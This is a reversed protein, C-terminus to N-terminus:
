KCCYIRHDDLNKEKILDEIELGYLLEKSEGAIELADKQHQQRIIRVETSDSARQEAILVHKVDESRAYEHVRIGCSDLFGCIIKCAAINPRALLSEANYPPFLQMRKLREMMAERQPELLGCNWLVHNLSEEECGCRCRPDSIINKREMWPWGHGDMKNKAETNNKAVKSFEAALDLYRVFSARPHERLTAVRALADVEENGELGIHSPIWLLEIEKGRIGSSLAVIKRKIELTQEMTGSRTRLSGVGLLASLSDSVIMFREGDTLAIHELAGIIAGCEATFISSIPSLSGSSRYEDRPCYVAYGVSPAGKVKSGDTYISTAKTTYIFLTSQATTLLRASSYHTDIYIVIITSATALMSFKGDLQYTRQSDHLKHQRVPAERSCSTANELVHGVDFRGHHLTSRLRSRRGHEGAYTAFVSSGREPRSYRHCITPISMKIKSRQRGADPWFIDIKYESSRSPTTANQFFETDAEGEQLVRLSQFLNVNESLATAPTSPGEIADSVSRKVVTKANRWHCPQSPCRGHCMRVDCEIYLAPSGTFRFTKMYAFVQTEFLGSESWSGRFRSILKDDVPCGFQDILQIRKNGGNHAYCDNVVIDFGDYKSRMYIILTLPDGVRVPGAVRTGSTGYGYRIEMYCEPPQLTFVVPNGTAVEVDLFPFTVTKWFDYGYECTVKFHEDFEEEILPNYQVTVTNWMLNKTPNKRSDQHHTNEGLTGCRNLQIFFEYYDRGTGNVYMCDPDYSYGASYLLGNFSGNFGIRIKMYDDQCEAEIHVYIQGCRVRACHHEVPGRPLRRSKQVLRPACIHVLSHFYALAAPHNTGCAGEALRLTYYIPHTATQLDSRRRAITVAASERRPERGSRTAASVEKCSVITMVIRIQQVRTTNPRYRRHERDWSEPHRRWDEETATGSGGGGGGGGGGAGAGAGAAGGGSLAQLSQLTQLAQLNPGLPRNKSSSVPVYPAGAGEGVYVVNRISACMCVCVRMFSLALIRRQTNSLNMGKAQLEIWFCVLCATPDNRLQPSFLFSSQICRAHETRRKMQVLVAALGITKQQIRWLRSKQRQNWILM